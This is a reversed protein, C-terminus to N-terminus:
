RQSTIKNSGFKPLFRKEDDLLDWIGTEKDKKKLINIIKKKEM